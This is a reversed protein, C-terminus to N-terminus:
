ELTFSFFFTLFHWRRQGTQRAPVENLTYATHDHAKLAGERGNQGQTEATM